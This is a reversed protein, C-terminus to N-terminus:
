GLADYIFSAIDVFHRAKILAETNSLASAMEGLM